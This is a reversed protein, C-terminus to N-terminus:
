QERVLRLVGRIFDALTLTNFADARLARNEEKVQQMEINLSSIFEVLKPYVQQWKIADPHLEEAPAFEQNSEDIPM